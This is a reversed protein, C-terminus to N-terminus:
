RWYESVLVFADDVGLGVILFPLLGTLNNEPVGLFYCTGKSALVSLTIGGLAVFSLGVMSHVPDKKGLMTCLYAIMMVYAIGM